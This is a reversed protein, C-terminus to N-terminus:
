EERGKVENFLKGIAELLMEITQRSVGMRTEFEFDEIEGIENLANNIALLEERSLVVEAESNKINVIKM